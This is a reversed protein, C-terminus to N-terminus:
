NKEFRILIEVVVKEGEKEEEKKTFIEFKWGVRIFYFVVTLYFALIPNTGTTFIYHM